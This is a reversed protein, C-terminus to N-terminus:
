NVRLLEVLIEARRQTEFAVLLAVADVIRAISDIGFLTKGSLCPLIGGEMGVTLSKSTVM